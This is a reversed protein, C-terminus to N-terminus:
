GGAVHIETAKKYGNLDGHYKARCHTKQIMQAANFTGRGTVWCGKTKRM